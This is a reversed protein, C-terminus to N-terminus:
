PGRAVDSGGLHKIRGASNNTLFLYILRPVLYLDSVPQPTLLTLFVAKATKIYPPKNHLTTKVASATQTYHAILTDRM